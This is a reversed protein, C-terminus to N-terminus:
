PGRSAPLPAAGLGLNFATSHRVVDWYAYFNPRPSLRCPRGTAQALYDCLPQFAKRTQGEDLIPQVALVLENDAATAPRSAVAFTMTLAVLATLAGVRLHQLRNIFMPM